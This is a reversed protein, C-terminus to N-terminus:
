KKFLYYETFGDHSYSTVAYGDPAKVMQEFLTITKYYPEVSEKVIYAYSGGVLLVKVVMYKTNFMESEYAFSIFCNKKLNPFKEYYVVGDYCTTKWLNKNYASANNQPLFSFLIVLVFFLLFLSKNKM